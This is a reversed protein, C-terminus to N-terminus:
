KLYNSLLISSLCNLLKARMLVQGPRRVQVKWNRLLPSSPLFIPTNKTRSHSTCITHLHSAFTICFLLSPTCTQLQEKLSKHRCFILCYIPSVSKYSSLKVHRTLSDTVTLPISYQSRFAASASCRHGPSSGAIVRCSRPLSETVAQKDQDRHSM